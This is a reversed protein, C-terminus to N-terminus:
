RDLPDRFTGIAAHAIPRTLLKIEPLPPARFASASKSFLPLFFFHFQRSALFIGQLPVLLRMPVGLRVHVKHLALHTLTHAEGLSV